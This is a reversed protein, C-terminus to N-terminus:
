LIGFSALMGFGRLAQYIGLLLGAIGALLGVTALPKSRIAGLAGFAALPLAALGCVVAPTDFHSVVQGNVTQTSSMSVVFPIVAIALAVWGLNHGTAREPILIDDDMDLETSM